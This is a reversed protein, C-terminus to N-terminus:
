KRCVNPYEDYNNYSYQVMITIRCQGSVSTVYHSQLLSLKNSRPSPHILNNGFPRMDTLWLVCPCLITQQCNASAEAKFKYVMVCMFCKAVQLSKHAPCYGYVAIQGKMTWGILHRVFRSYRASNTGFDESEYTVNQWFSSKWFLPMVDLTSCLYTLYWPHCANIFAAHYIQHVHIHSSCHLTALPSCSSTLTSSLFCSLLLTYVSTAM